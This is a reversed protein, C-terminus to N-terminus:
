LFDYFFNSFFIKITIYILKLSLFQCYQGSNKVRLELNGWDLM